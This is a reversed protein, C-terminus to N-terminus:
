QCVKHQDRTLSNHFEQFSISMFPKGFRVEITTLV